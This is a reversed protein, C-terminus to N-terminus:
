STMIGLIIVADTKALNPSLTCQSIDKEQYLILLDVYQLMNFILCGGKESAYHSIFPFITMYKPM